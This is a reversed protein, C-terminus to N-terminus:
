AAHSVPVQKTVYRPMMTKPDREIVRKTRMEQKTMDIRRPKENASRCCLEAYAIAYVMDDNYVNKNMTGWQVSGDPKSEVSIKRVQSWVDYYFIRHGHTRLLNTTDHYLAEKRSGKGGKLDVGYLHTGGQYAPLLSGRYMLSAGLSFTPGTKTDIYRGAANNEVVEKCARQGHNAYYMGMLICQVFLEKPFATRANLMCAVTPTFVTHGDIKTEVGVADWIASAFRSFGGDNQIPDTGQYYRSYWGKERDFMMRVPSDMDDAPAPEWIVDRVPHKFIGGPPLTITTDYVPVFRGPIPALGKSMVEAKIFSQIGLILEMPILTKHATMFADDPESPYHAKFLGLREANSLGKSEDTQGRLYKRKTKLYHERTMGPRCTWDMFLPVWGDTEMGTQWAELLSKFDEEFAGKGTNNSSGTGWAFIQRVLEMRGTLENYQFMTPDIEGKIHQYTAINQCEDFFSQTPTQGNVAMTDEAGLLLFEGTDRGKNGKGESRDFDMVVRDSAWNDEKWAVRMWPAMHQLTSMFKDKFLKKGTGDKKHVMFVGNYSTRVVAELAAIAMMTSTIAAQRGKVLDFSFGQDVLYALLAQPASARFKRRGGARNDEKISVYRNLGYLKNVRIKRYEGKKWDYRESSPVDALDPTSEEMRRAYECYLWFKKYAKLNDFRPIHSNIFARFEKDPKTPDEIAWDDPTIIKHKWEEKWDNPIRDFYALGEVRKGKDPGAKIIPVEFLWLHQEDPVKEVEDEHYTPQELKRLEAVAQPGAARIQQKQAFSLDAGEATLRLLIDAQAARVSSLTSM